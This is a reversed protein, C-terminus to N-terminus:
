SCSSQESADEREFRRNFYKREVTTSRLWESQDRSPASPIPPRHMYRGAICMFHLLCSQGEVEQPSSGGGGRKATGARAEEQEWSHGSPLDQVSWEFLMAVHLGVLGVLTTLSFRCSLLCPCFV